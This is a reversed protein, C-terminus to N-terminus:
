ERNQDVIQFDALAGAELSGMVLPERNAVAGGFTYARLAEERTCNEEVRFGAPRAIAAQIGDWPNGAVIPRDSSFSLPIGADLVSRTRVLRSAREQGLQRMYSSSFRAMFEPQFTCHVGLKALREVQSDSLIMAHEIRHRLPEGTRELANMVLDTSRDGISHIAIPFGAGHATDVMDNLIEPPYMLQGDASERSSPDPQKDEYRGYIAATGSGIAGDAFIKAGCVRLSKSASAALIKPDQDLMLHRIKEITEPRASSGFVDAWRVFLRIHIPCGADLALQYADLEDEINFFGTQMDTACGIGQSSMLNGARLIAEVMESKTPAPAAATVREHAAELLVGTLRGDADRVFTGGSPDKVDEDVGVAKLAATNVVSAHGNVHRLLIPRDLSIRDLDARGLHAGGYRNQDYHVAHIWGEPREQASERVLDLVDAHSNAQGLHLKLLDLGTPLIHCHADIFRPLVTQGQLSIREIDTSADISRYRALVVGNEVLM